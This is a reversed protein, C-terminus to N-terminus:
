VRMRSVYQNRVHYWQACAFDRTCFQQVAHIPYALLFVTLDEREGRM